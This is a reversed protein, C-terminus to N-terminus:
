KKYEFLKKLMEVQNEHVLKFEPFYIHSKPGVEINDNKKNSIKLVGNKCKLIPAKTGDSNTAVVGYKEFINNMVTQVDRQYKTNYSFLKYFDNCIELLSDNFNNCGSFYNFHAINKRVEYSKSKNNSKQFLETQFVDNNSTSIKKMTKMFIENISSVSIDAVESKYKDTQLMYLVDREWRTAWALFHGYVDMVFHHARNLQEGKYKSQAYTYSLYAEHAIKAECYMAHLEHTDQEIINRAEIYKETKSMGKVTRNFKELFDNYKNNLKESENYNNKIIELDTKSFKYKSKADFYAKLFTFTGYKGVRNIGKLNHYHKEDKFLNYEQVTDENGKIQINADNIPFNTLIQLNDELQQNPYSIRINEDRDKVKIIIELIQIVQKMHTEFEDTYESLLQANLQYNKCKTKLDQCFQVFKKIDHSLHAVEKRDVLTATAIFSGELGKLKDILIQEKYKTHVMEVISNEDAFIKREDYTIDNFIWQYKENELFAIFNATIFHIWKQNLKQVRHSNIGAVSQIVGRLSRVTSNESYNEILIDTDNNQQYLEKYKDISVSSQMFVDYYLEQLIFKLAQRKQSATLKEAETKEEKKCVDGILTYRYNSIDQLQEMYSLEQTMATKEFEQYIKEFNPYYFSNESITFSNQEVFTYIDEEHYCNIVNNSMLSELYITGMEGIVESIYHKTHGNLEKNMLEIMNLKYHAAHLRLDIITSLFEKIDDNDNGNSFITNSTLFPMAIKENFVKNKESIELTQEKWKIFKNKGGLFDFGVDLNSSLTYGAMSVTTAVKSLFAEKAKLYEYDVSTIKSEDIIISQARRILEVHYNLKGENLPTTYQKNDLAKVMKQTLHEVVFVSKVDVVTIPKVRSQVKSNKWLLDIFKRYRGKVYDHMASLIYKETDTLKNTGVNLVVVSKYHNKVVDVLPSLQAQNEIIEPLELGQVKECLKSIDYYGFCKNKKIAIDESGIYYKLYTAKTKSEDYKFNTAYIRNQIVNKKMYEKFYQKEKYKTREGKTKKEDLDWYIFQKLFHYIEDRNKEIMDVKKNVNTEFFMRVLLKINIQKKKLQKKLLQELESATLSTSINEGLEKLSEITIFSMTFKSIDKVRDLNERCLNFLVTNINDIEINQSDKEQKFIFNDSGGKRNNEFKIYGAKHSTKFLDCYNKGVERKENKEDFFLISNGERIRTLKIKPITQKGNKKGDWDRKIKTIRYKGSAM